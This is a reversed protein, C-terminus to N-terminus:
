CAARRVLGARLRTDGPRREPGARTEPASRLLRRRRVEGARAYASAAVARALEEQGLEASVMVIQDPQVNAGHVALDALRTWRDAM